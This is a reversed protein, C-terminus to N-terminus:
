ANDPTDTARGDTINVQIATVPATKDDKFESDRNKLWFMSAQTNGSEMASVLTRRALGNTADRANELLEWVDLNRDAIRYYKEPRIGAVECAGRVSSGNRFSAYLSAIQRRSLHTSQYGKPVKLSTTSLQMKEM